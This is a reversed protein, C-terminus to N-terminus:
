PPEDLFDGEVISRHPAVGPTCRRRSSQRAPSVAGTHLYDCKDRRRYPETEYLVSMPGRVLPRKPRGRAVHMIARDANEHGILISQSIVVYSASPGAAEEVWDMAINRGGVFYPCRQKHASGLRLHSGLGLAPPRRAGGPPSVAGSRRDHAENYDFHCWLKVRFEYVHSIERNTQRKKEEDRKTERERERKSSKVFGKYLIEEM